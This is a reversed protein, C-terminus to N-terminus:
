SMARLNSFPSLCFYYTIDSYFKSSAYWFEHDRARSGLGWVKKCQTFVEPAFILGTNFFWKNWSSSSMFLQYQVFLQLNDFYNYNNATEWQAGDYINWLARLIGRTRFLGPNKIDRQNQIYLLKPSVLSKFIGPNQINWLTKTYGQPTKNKRQWFKYLFSM